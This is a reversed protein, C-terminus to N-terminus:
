ILSIKKMKEILNDYLVNKVYRSFIFDVHGFDAIPVMYSTKVNPLQYRLKVANEMIATDDNKSYYLNIPATIRSLNYPPPTDRGYVERNKKKDRYDFQNFDGNRIM